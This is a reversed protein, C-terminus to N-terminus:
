DYLEKLINLNNKYETQSIELNSSMESIFNENEKEPDTIKIKKIYNIKKFSKPVSKRLFKVIYFDNSFSNNKLIWRNVSSNILMASTNDVMSIWRNLIYFSTPTDEVDSNQKKLIWNLVNFLNNNKM